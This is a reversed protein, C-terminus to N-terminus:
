SNLPLSNHSSNMTERVIHITPDGLRRRMKPFPSLVVVQVLISGYLYVQTISMHNRQSSFSKAGNRHKCVEVPLDAPVGGAGPISTIIQLASLNRNPRNIAFAWENYMIMCAEQLGSQCAWIMYTHMDCRRITLGSRNFHICKTLLPYLAMDLITM